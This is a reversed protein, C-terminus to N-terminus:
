NNRSLELWKKLSIFNKMERSQGENLEQTSVFKLYRNRDLLGALAKPLEDFDPFEAKVNITTDLDNSVLDGMEKSKQAILDPVVGKIARRHLYRSVGKPGLKQQSPVSLFFNVLRLDILPWSYEIGYGAAFLSCNEM